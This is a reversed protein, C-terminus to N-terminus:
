STIQLTKHKQQTTNKKKLCFVAYSTRMLSQLESTHEESRSARLASKVCARSRKMTSAIFSRNASSPKVVSKRASPSTVMGCASVARMSPSPPFHRIFLCALTHSKAELAFAHDHWQRVEHRELDHSM